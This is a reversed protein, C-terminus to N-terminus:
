KSKKYMLQSNSMRTQLSLGELFNSNLEIKKNAPKLTPIRRLGQSLMLTVVDNYALKHDIECSKPFYSSGETMGPVLNVEMFYCEDNQNTKIDIRAYDRIGLGYFVDTAMKSLKVKLRNDIVKKLQESNDIKAKYGLIKLGNTSVPPIIEIHSILLHGNNRQIVSVTYENGDLYEEVLIPLNFESHLSIVKSEFEDFNTVYSLDDIGNGNAADIPKLFLPFAIPLENEFKYQGPIATFYNLTKIGRNKLHTKALVKNSDFKLVDRTSGTYNIKHSEFYESLYVDNEDKISLYKVAVIVLDPKRMVTNLLDNKTECVNLVVNHGMKIVAELVSNCSKLSGFGSEKLKENPTTIIEINM